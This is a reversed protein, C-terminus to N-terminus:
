YSEEFGNRGLSEPSLENARMRDVIYSLDFGRINFGTITDPDVEEVERAFKVLIGGDYDHTDANFSYPPDWVGDEKIRIGITIIPNLESRPFFGRPDVDTEIDVAMVKVM